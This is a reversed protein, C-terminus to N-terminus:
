EAFVEVESLGINIGKAKGVSIKLFNTRRPPKIEIKHAVGDNPLAGTVIDPSGAMELGADLIHDIANSRDYLVVQHIVRPANWRLEIWAGALQGESVWEGSNHVGKEGDSEGMVHHLLM